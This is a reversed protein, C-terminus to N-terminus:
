TYHPVYYMTIKPLVLNGFHERFKTRILEKQKATPAKFEIERYDDDDWGNSLKTIIGFYTYQGSMGDSLLWRDGKTDELMDYLTDWDERRFLKETFGEDFKCGYVIYTEKRVGM